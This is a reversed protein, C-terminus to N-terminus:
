CIYDSVPETPLCRTLCICDNALEESHKVFEPSWSQCPRWVRPVIRSRSNVFCQCVIPARHIPYVSLLYSAQKHALGPILQRKVCHTTLPSTGSKCAHEPLTVDDKEWNPYMETMCAPVSLEPSLMGRLARQAFVCREEEPAHLSCMLGM